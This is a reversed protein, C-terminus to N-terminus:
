HAMFEGSGNNSLAHAIPVTSTYISQDREPFSNEARDLYLINSLEMITRNIINVM